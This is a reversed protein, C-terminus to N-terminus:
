LTVPSGMPVEVHKHVAAQGVQVYDIPIAQFLELQKELIAAPVAAWLPSNAVAPEAVTAVVVGFKM